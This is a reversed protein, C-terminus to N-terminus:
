LDSVFLLWNSAYRTLRVTGDECGTAIWSSKDFQGSTGNVEVLINKSVFCLSHMERGHFQIHLNQPFINGESKPIWKRHIYIIEDQSPFCFFLIISPSEIAVM